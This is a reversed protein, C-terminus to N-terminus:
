GSRAGVKAAASFKAAADQQLQNLYISGITESWSLRLKNILWALMKGLFCYHQSSRLKWPGSYRFGGVRIKSCNMDLIKPAVKLRVHENARYSRGFCDRFVLSERQEPNWGCLQTGM